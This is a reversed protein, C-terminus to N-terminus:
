PITLGELVPAPVARNLRCLYFQWLLCAAVSRWPRWAEAMIRLERSDPREPLAKLWQVAIQLALDGAPWIDPRGLAFLLFVEASWHGFGRLATIAELAADDGLRALRMPSFQRELIARALGRAYGIKQRTFGCNMLAADDLALFRRPTLPRCRQKLRKWLKAAVDLSLQQELIIHLLTGFSAPRRPFRPLGYTALIRAFDPDLRALARAGAELGDPAHKRARAASVRAPQSDRDM